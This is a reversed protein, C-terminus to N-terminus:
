PLVGVKVLFLIILSVVVGALMGNLFWTVRDETDRNM